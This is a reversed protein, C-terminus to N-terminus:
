QKSTVLRYKCAEELGEYSSGVKRPLMPVSCGLLIAVVDRPRAEESGLGLLGKSSFFLSRGFCSRQASSMFGEEAMPTQRRSKRWECFAQPYGSSAKLGESTRDAILTRRFAEERTNDNKYRESAKFIDNVISELRNFFASQNM